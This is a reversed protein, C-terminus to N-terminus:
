MDSVRAACFSGSVRSSLNMKWVREMGSNQDDRVEWSGDDTYTVELVIAMRGNKMTAWQRHEDIVTQQGEDTQVHVAM